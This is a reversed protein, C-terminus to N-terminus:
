NFLNFQQAEWFKGSKKQAIRKYLRESLELAACNASNLRQRVASIRAEDEPTLVEGNRLASEICDRALNAAVGSNVSIASILEVNM